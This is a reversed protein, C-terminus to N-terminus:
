QEVRMQKEKLKLIRDLRKEMRGLSRNTEDVREILARTLYRIAEFSKSNEQFKGIPLDPQETIKKRRTKATVEM